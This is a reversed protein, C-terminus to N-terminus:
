NYPPYYRPQFVFYMKLVVKLIEKLDENNKLMNAVGASVFILFLSDGLSEGELSFIESSAQYWLM